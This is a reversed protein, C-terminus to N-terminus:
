NKSLKTYYEIELLRRKIDSGASYGGISGDTEIVRHCPFIIPIPNKGLANGVARFAHPKDIKEALWKYTRTEGYPIEKLTEWVKREFETGEMFATKCTFEQLAKEFYRTLEKKAHTMGEKRKLLFNAPRSFSIGTLVNSTFILYLPGLPSELIDYFDNLSPRRQKM